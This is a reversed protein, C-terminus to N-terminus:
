LTRRNSSTQKGRVRGRDWKNYGRNAGDSTAISRRGELRLCGDLCVEQYNFQV